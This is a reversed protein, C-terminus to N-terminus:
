VLLNKLKALTKEIEEIAENIQDMDLGGEFDMAQDVMIERHDILYNLEENVVDAIEETECFVNMFRSNTDFDVFGLMGPFNSELQDRLDEELEFPDGYGMNGLEIDTPEFLVTATGDAKAIIFNEM